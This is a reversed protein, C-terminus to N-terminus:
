FEDGKVSIFNIWYDAGTSTFKYVCYNPDTQGTPFHQALDDKWFKQKSTEDTLVEVTGTLSVTNSGDVFSIGAKPNAKVHGTKASSLGTVFYIVRIGENAIKELPVPRPFGKENISAFTLISAKDILDAALKRIQEKDVNSSNCM